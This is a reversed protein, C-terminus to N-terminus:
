SAALKGAISIAHTVVMKLWPKTHDGPGPRPARGGARLSVADAGHNGPECNSHANYAILGLALVTVVFAGVIGIRKPHQRLHM